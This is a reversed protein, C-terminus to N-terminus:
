PRSDDSSQYLGSPEYYQWKSGCLCTHPGGCITNDEPCWFKCRHVSGFLCSEDDVAGCKHNM